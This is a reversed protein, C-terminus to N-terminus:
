RSGRPESPESSPLPAAAVRDALVRAAGDLPIEDQSHGALDKVTVVGRELEGEGLLLAFRAGVADARRLMPKLRLGRGDVETGVGASRLERALVLARDTAAASMPAIYAAPGARRPADPMTALLREMGAAFGIAPVKPGGLGAVMDDYRGGGVLTNQAGLDGAATKLEFLTRTYYDLGRVLTPDVVYAVGLVDLAHRLGDWHAQDAEDLLDLISPAGKAAEKDRPDKSDLIRLPNKELRRQSDESLEHKKPELFAKLADRYRARTGGSGLSSVHVTFSPIGLARLLESVFDIMEADAVPGADGYHEVGLQYFQRYRGKAPREGRFM